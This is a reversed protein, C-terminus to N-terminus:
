IDCFRFLIYGAIIWIIKHSDTPNFTNTYWIYVIITVAARYIFEIVGAILKNYNGIGKENPQNLKYIIDLIGDKKKGTREVLAEPIAEFLILFLAILINM